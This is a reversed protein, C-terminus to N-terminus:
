KYDKLSLVAVKRTKIPEGCYPCKKFETLLPKGCAPCLNQFQTKEEIKKIEKKLSSLDMKIKDLGEKLPQIEKVDARVNCM